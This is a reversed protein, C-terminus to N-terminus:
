KVLLKTTGFIYIGPLFGSYTNIGPRVDFIRMLNGGITYMQLTTPYTSDIIVRKGKPYIYLHPGKVGKDPDGPQEDSGIKEQRAAGLSGIFIQKALQPGAAKSDSIVGTTMYTRFPLVAATNSDFATGADNMSYVTESQETLMYTGIHNYANAGEGAATTMVPTVPISVTASKNEEDSEPGYANFTITQPDNTKVGNHFVMDYFQSSLDFEYYRSGPFSAIYPVNATQPLYDAYTHSDNYWRNQNSADNWNYNCSQYTDKFWQNNFAFSTIRAATQATNVFLGDEGDTGPRQFTATTKGNSADITVLGRLWYEHHLTKDNHEPLMDQGVKDGTVLGKTVDAQTYKPMGYFHTIEGNLSAETKNVTFPLVVGEWADNDSEAYKAPQRTYWARNSVTFSIPVCFDNNRCENGNADKGEPTREVLHLYQTEASSGDITIHHCKIQAENTTEDYKYKQLADHVDSTSNVDNPATYVLLNRSVDQQVIINKFVSANDAIPAYWISDSMGLALAKDNKCTFDIATTTPRHVYTSMFRNGSSFANYHFISLSTDGYYGATRFVRNMMESTMRSEIASPYSEPTNQISQGWFLFDNMNETNTSQGSHYAANFLPKYKGSFSEPIIEGEKKGADIEEATATHEAVYGVARAQDITHRKDHRTEYNGYNPYAASSQGTRLWTIGTAKGTIDDKRNAYQYDGNAYYDYVYKLATLDNESSNSYRARLYYENLDYAVKGYRFDDRSYTNDATGDMRYVVPKAGTTPEYEFCCHLKGSGSAAFAGSALGLNYINGENNSILAKGASLNSIVHGNGHIIGKFTSAPVYDDPLTINNQFIFQAYEGYRPVEKKKGSIKVYEVGDEVLGTVVGNVKGTGITDVFQVFARIDKQDSIYIRPAAFKDETDKNDEADKTRALAEALHLNVGAAHPDMQHFNHVVLRDNDSMPVSFIESLGNMSVGLQVKYGNMYYYAPIELYDETKNYYCGSFVGKGKEDGVKYVDYHETSGDVIWNDNDAFDKGIRWYYATASFSEDADVSIESKKLRIMEGPLACNEVTIKGGLDPGQVYDIVLDITYTNYRDLNAFATGDNKIKNSTPNTYESGKLIYFSGSSIEQYFNTDGCRYYYQTTGTVDIDANDAVKTYTDGDKTYIKGQLAMYYKMNETTNDSKTVLVPSTLLITAKFQESLHKKYYDSSSNDVNDKLLFSIKAFGTLDDPLLASENKDTTSADDKLKDNFTNEHMNLQARFGNSDDYKNAASAGIYLKYKEKNAVKTLDFDATNASYRKWEQITIEAGASLGSLVTIENNLSDFSKNTSKSTYGTIHANYYYNFGTVYWYHIDNDKATNGPKWPSPFCDDVIYRRETEKYPFVFNGTTELFDETEGEGRKHVNDAYVYGGGEDQRVDILNMEVVGYIPGYYTKDIIDGNDKKLAQVNQIKLAYGSAIGIMNKATGNNRKQFEEENGKKSSGEMYFGEIVEQKFQRYTKKGGVLSGDQDYMDSDFSVNSEVAGVYHINNALGMYNRARKEGTSTSLKSDTLTIKNAHMQIEGVRSISYPTKDTANTAYDRAGLLTFCNDTLRIIDLRQFTNIIKPSAITHSAFGYGTLDASRFGEVYSLHGDGFIGGENDYEYVTLDAGCEAPKNNSSLKGNSAFYLGSMYIYKYNGNTDKYYYGHLDAGDAINTAKRMEQHSITIHDRDTNGVATPSDGVLITTNGGFGATTGNPLAALEAKHEDNTTFANDLNYTETFKLVTTNNATVSSGQALSYGGGYLAEGIKININDWGVSPTEASVKTFYASKDNDTTINIRTGNDIAVIDDYVAQSVIDGTVLYVSQKITEAAVTTNAYDGTEPAKYNTDIDKNAHDVRDLIYKGTKGFNVTYYTPYGVKVQASGWVYGSYSGGTVSKFIHGNFVEVNTVGIVNGQQGGGYIFNASTGTAAFTTASADPAKCTIGKAVIVNPNGYVYSDMGYGAGYVNLAAYKPNTALLENSKELKTKDKGNLMDSRLDITIDGRITGTEFCGGYVNGGIYAGNEVKPEFKNKIVLKIFPYTSKALGLLYGGEHYVKDEGSKWEYNANNCGGVIKDTITLGEPFIYEFVNGAKDGTTQPYINMNGRNGGCCFTGITCNTLDTGEETGNWLLKGQIDMEVPQFYLDLLHPYILPREENKTPLYLTSIGKNSPDNLWDINDSLNLDGRVGLIDGNLKRFNTMFANDESATFLEDGNCGMFVRGIGVHSGINLNVSGVTATKDSGYVKLVTASNGGGYVDGKIVTRDNTSNGKINISVKNTLPRWSNINVIKAADSASKYSPMSERMPVTYVLDFEESEPDDPNLRYHENVTVKTNGKRDLAYLYNGNGAGYVNGDIQGGRITINTGEGGNDAFFGDNDLKINVYGSVDNGGYVSGHVYLQNNTTANNTGITVNTSNEVDGMLGGGFIDQCDIVTIDVHTNEVSNYFGGGFVRRCFLGNSTVYTDGTVKGSYGGGVLDMVSYESVFHKHEEGKVLTIDEPNNTYGTMNADIHTDKLINTNEGYGGGFVAFHPSGVKNFVEKWEDSAFFNYDAASTVDGPRVGTTQKLLGKTLTIYTNGEVQCALNGGGYINHNIKFTRAEPDYQPSYMQNKFEVAPVWNRTNPLWYSTLLFTGGNILVNTNGTVNAYTIDMVEPAKASASVDGWGGGFVNYGINGDNIAVLTNGYVTGNQCGGYIRNWIYASAAPATGKATSASSYGTTKAMAKATSSSSGKFYEDASPNITETYGSGTSNRYPYSAYQKDSAIYANGYIAGLKTYDKCKSIIRGKGGAFVQSMFVGGRIDVLSAYSTSKYNDNTIEPADAGETGVNAVDGGGYVSGFISTREIIHQDSYNIDEGYIHVKTGETVRAMDPFDFFTSGNKVSEVGAGGGYVNNSIIGSKIFVKSSGGVKGFDYADKATSYSGSDLYPKSGLGGGFVNRCAMQCDTEVYTNGTVYGSFGGGHINMFTFNPIGASFAMRSARYRLYTNPDTGSGDISGYHLKKETETVNNKYYDYLDQEFASYVELDALQNRYQYKKGNVTLIDKGDNSLITGPQALVKTSGVKTNAGYGAGFVSFQPSPTNYISLYWCMGQLTTCDLLSIPNGEDDLIDTLPSHNLEVIAEGSVHCARNGGGFINHNKKFSRSAFDFFEKTSADSEILALLSQAKELALAEEEETEFAEHTGTLAMTINRFENFDKLVKNNADAAATWTTVNGNIDAKRNWIWSGGDIQVKTNGLINAYTGKNDTDKKGLVQLLTENATSQGMSENTQDGTIPVDGYGGGFINLGLMGGEVHVLTNGNVTGYSCGGYIRNWVYPINNGQGDFAYGSNTNAIHLLTNGDVRGVKAYDTLDSKKLGKGGAFVEGFIDGGLINVFTKYNDAQYSEFAGTTQNLTSVSTPKNTFDPKYGDAASVNAIDGGGFVKGYVKADDSVEVMTTGKVRAISTYASTSASSPKVGAGGGFVDGYIKAGKVYVETNGGVEGTTNNSSSFPDGFGGGYVRHIFTVGDVTVNTNGSVTGAYGGGLVGLVTFNPIGKSNDFVKSTEESNSAERVSKALSPTVSKSLQEVDDDDTIEADYLGYDGEVNVTVKTSGVKTDKGYGGGFVYFHPNNNDTYSTKWEQTKLLSFPTMGKQVTVTATGTGNTLTAPEGTYKGVVCANKGGGYINHANLFKKGDWFKSKDYYGEEVGTVPAAWGYFKEKTSDWLKDWIVNISFQDELTGGEGEEQGGQDQALMVSTNGTVDASNIVVTKGDKDKALLGNGGGFIEGAFNGAYINVYTDGDVYALNGGGFIDGYMYPAQTTTGYFSVNTNGTVKGVLEPSKTNDEIMEISADRKERGNGGAYVSGRVDAKDSISLMTADKTGNDIRAMDGGGYVNEYFTGGNINVRSQGTILAMNSLTNINNNNEGDAVLCKADAVGYGGGFVPCHFTGGNINMEVNGFIMGLKKYDKATPETYTGNIAGQAGYRNKAYYNDTGRGGAFIGNTCYFEGGNITLSAVTQGSKGYINGGNVNPIAGGDTWLGSAMYGSGGGYIGDIPDDSSGFVGGNIIVKTCTQEPDVDTFTHTDANYCHYKAFKGKATAYTGYKVVDGEWYAIREDPTHNTGDGIGNMGGAGAGFIGCLIEERKTIEGDRIKFTGGNITVTSTGYFPNDVVVNNAFGRGCSGGYLETVMIRENTTATNEGKTYFHSKYPDLLINVRGMYTNYPPNLEKNVERQNGLTGGVIRGVKGSKVIIDVDGYMAGEHNGAMIIGADFDPKTTSSTSEDNFTRNIDMEITCKIPMNATGMIGNYENSNLSQRGGVCITSYHGSKFVMKFGEKGHPLSAELDDNLAKTNLPYFRGDNNIGGFVQFSTTWASGITGYGPSNKTYGLMKVGEGMELNNYQCYLIDYEQGSSQFSLNEFRTDGWIPLAADKGGVWIKADYTTGEWKGTITTNRFFFSNNNKNTKKWEDPTLMSTGSTTGSTNNTLNFGYNADNTIAATSEGMLVIVNEDWSAGDQLKSYAGKWTLMPKDSSYGYGQQETDKIYVDEKTKNEATLEAPKLFVVISTFLDRDIFTIGDDKTTVKLHCRLKDTQSLTYTYTETTASKSGNLYWEFSVSLNAKIKELTDWEPVNTNIRVTYKPASTKDLLATVRIAKVLENKSRSSGDVLEAYVYQDYEKRPITFTHSQFDGKADTQKVWNVRDSSLYWYYLETGDKGPTTATAVDMQGRAITITTNGFNFGNDTSYVWFEKEDFANDISFQNNAKIFETAFKDLEKPTGYNSNTGTGSIGNVYYWTNRNDTTPNNTVAVVVGWKNNAQGNTVIAPGHVYINAAYINLANTQNGSNIRGIGGGVNVNGSNINTNKFMNITVDSSLNFIRVVGPEVNGLVGGIRYNGNLGPTYSEENDTIKSNRIIINSLEGNNYVEGAAIGINIGDGIPQYGAKKQIEADQFILNTICGFGAETTSKGLIRSFLGWANWKIKDTKWEIRMNKITHGKGDFKGFFYRETANNWAGIPMWLASSLDIDKSLVFYKGVFNEKTSSNNVEYALRALQLDTAIVYPKEKTGDGTKDHFEDDYLDISYYKPSMSFSLEVSEEGNNWSVKVNGQVAKNRLSTNITSYNNNSADATADVREGDVKWEYTYSLPNEVQLYFKVEKSKHTSADYVEHVSVFFPLFAPTKSNWFYLYDHSKCYNNTLSTFTSYGTSSPVSLAYAKQVTLNNGDKDKYTNGDDVYWTNNVTTSTPINTGFIPGIKTLGSVGIINGKSYVNTPWTKRDTQFEGIITGIVINDKKNITAKSVDTNVNVYVNSLTYNDNNDLIKGALGGIGFWKDNQVIAESFYINSKKIIINEISTGSKISGALIGLTRAQGVKAGESGPSNCVDAKDIVLNRVTANTYLSSFLGYCLESSTSLVNWRITMDSITKGNGELTGQFNIASKNALNGIPTWYGANLQINESLKFFQGNYTTGNTVDRALKALQLDTAILYPDSETGSGSQFGDAYLDTSYYRVPITFNVTRTQTKGDITKSVTVSGSRESTSLPVTLSLNNEFSADPIETGSKDGLSWTITTNKDHEFGSLTVIAKKTLRDFSQELRVFFTPIPHDKFHLRSKSDLTWQLLNNATAYTNMKSMFDAEDLSSVETAQGTFAPKLATGNSNTYQQGSEVFWTDKVTTASPKNKGFVPGVFTLAASATINGKVYLNTPSSKVNTQFESIFTAIFVNNPANVTMKSFDIDVDVYINAIKCNDSNEEFKGVFGSIVFYKSSQKFPAAVEIKSSHVAINKIETNTNQFIMGALVGFLRDDGANPNTTTEENFLKADEFVINRVKAGARLQSFFGYNKKGGSAAEWKITMGSIVYGDGDFTGSFNNENKTITNGIPVWFHDSLDINAGLKFCATKDQGSTVRAAFYALQGATKIIYPADATGSGSDYATAQYADWNGSQAWASPTALAFLVTIIALLKIHLSKRIM